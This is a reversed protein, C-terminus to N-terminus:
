RKVVKEVRSYGKITTAKILYIGDHFDTLSIIAQKSRPLISYVTSGTLDLIEINSIIENSQISLNDSVPNPYLVIKMENKEIIDRSGTNVGGENQRETITAVLSNLYVEVNTYGTDLTYLKGDNVDNPNLGNATEWEDPMGDVDTDLPASTSILSPWPSWSSGSNSPKTDNQSDIIGWKPYSGSNQTSLGKFAATGLMTEDIVRTDYDDRSLSAGAFLIVKDYAQHATHTTIEGFEFPIDMKMEAKEADTVTGYKGHYQNYVGYTWNNQTANNCATANSGTSTSADIVNGEIFFKGWKNNIPYFDDSSSLNLKMDIAIIRARKAGSNSAPGPKYFNNVINANMGEAGYCGNGSANYFVNNRLDTNENLQTKVSPGLRPTRSDHHAMLNHHFSANSGGWIGGYGHAGKTHGSLRLSESIICWQLTTNENGYISVCEDTSWSMSCHDVMINKVYRAGLADGGDAGTDLDDGMRFRIYRIIIDNASITVPYGGICIGDGPSSQGAITTKGSSISLSSNLMITGSVKFLITKPSRKKLAWRLTGESNDDELSTVYYVNGGRGGLTYKGFGEAGPFAPTQAIMPIGFVILAIICVTKRFISMPRFNMKCKGPHIITCMLYLPFTYNSIWLTQIIRINYPMFSVM